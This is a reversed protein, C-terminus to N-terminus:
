SPKLNFDITFNHLSRKAMPEGLTSPTGITQTMSTARPNTALQV